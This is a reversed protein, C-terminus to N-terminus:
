RLIQTMSSWERNDNHFSLTSFDSCGMIRSFHNRLRFVSINRGDGFDVGTEGFRFLKKVLEATNAVKVRILAKPDNIKYLALSIKNNALRPNALCSEQFLDAM